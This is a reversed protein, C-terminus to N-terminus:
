CAPLDEPLLDYLVDDAFTGDGLNGARRALGIRQFGAGEIARRSGANDAAHRITLRRLGMGGSGAPTLAHRVLLQLAASVVGRGRAEPHVWYGIESREGPEQVDIMGLLLGDADRIAWGAWTGHLCGRSLAAVFSRADAETYGAHIRGPGGLWRVSEPDRCAEVIRAVDATSDTVAALVLREGQRTSGQLTAPLRRRAVTAAGVEVRDEGVTWAWRTIAHRAGTPEADDVPHAAPETGWLTFGARQLVAQSALNDEHTTAVVRARGLGGEAVPRTVFDLVTDLARQLVGGGRHAPNVWYGVEATDPFHRDALGLLNMAGLLEGALETGEAGVVAYTLDTGALRRQERQAVYERAEAVNGPAGMFRWHETESPMAALAPVDDATFARLVIGDGELVPQPLGAEARARPAVAPRAAPPTGRPTGEPLRAEHLLEFAWSDELEEGAGASALTQGVVRFGARLHAGISATNSARAESGIRVLGLGGEDEPAFAHDVVQLLGAHLLGRGRGAPHMWFSLQASTPQYPNGLRFLSIGGLAEDTAPDCVAWHIGTGTAMQERLGTLWATFEAEGAPPVSTHMYRLGEADPGEAPRDGETFARLRVGPLERGRGDVGAAGELTVAARWPHVPEMPEGARWTGVWGDFTEREQPMLGRVASSFRFGLRWGARRSAWNGVATRWHLTELGGHETAWAMALRCAATMVGQGRAEPHLVLGLEGVGGGIPRIEVQGAFRWGGEDTASRDDRAAGEHLDIAWGMVAREDGTARAEWGERMHGVWWQAEGTGYPSPVTTWRVAEPDTSTEVVAPVDRADHLRLRVRGDTLVPCATSAPPGAPTADTM